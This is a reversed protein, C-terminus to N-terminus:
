PKSAAKRYVTMDALSVLRILRAPKAFHARWCVMWDTKRVNDPHLPILPQGISAGLPSNWTKKLIRTSKM